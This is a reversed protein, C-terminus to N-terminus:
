SLITNRETSFRRGHGPIIEDVQNLRARTMHWEISDYIIFHDSINAAHWDEESLVADGAIMVSRNHEQVELGLQGACHGPLPVSRVGEALENTGDLLVVPYKAMVEALQYRKDDRYRVFQKVFVPAIFEHSDLLYKKYAAEDDKFQMLDNIFAVEKEPMYITDALNNVESLNFHDFHLHTYFITNVDNAEIPLPDLLQTLEEVSDIRAPDVLCIMDGAVVVTGAATLTLGSGAYLQYVRNDSM